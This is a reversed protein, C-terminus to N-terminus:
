IWEAEYLSVSVLVPQYLSMSALVPECLSVCCQVPECFSVCPWLPCYYSLSAWPSVWTCLIYTKSAAPTMWSPTQSASEGQDSTPHPPSLPCRIKTLHGENEQSKANQWMGETQPIDRCTQGWFSEGAVGWMQPCKFHDVLTGPSSM